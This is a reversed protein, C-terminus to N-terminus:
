FFGDIFSITIYRYLFKGSLLGNSPGTRQFMNQFKAKDQATLPPFGSIPPPSRPISMGTSQRGVDSVGDITPLPGAATLTLMM